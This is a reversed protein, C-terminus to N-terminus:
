DRVGVFNDYLLRYVEGSEDREFVLTSWYTRHIFTMEGAPIMWADSTWSKQFLQGNKQHFTLKANPRYFDPGFQYSGAIDGLKTLPPPNVLLPPATVEGGIVLDTLEQTITSPVGNYINGLVIVTM